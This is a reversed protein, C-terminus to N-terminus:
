EEQKAVLREGQGEMEESRKAEVRRDVSGRGSREGVSGIPRVDAFSVGGVRDQILVCIM